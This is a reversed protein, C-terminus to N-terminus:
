STVLFEYDEPILAEMLNFWVKCYELVWADSSVAIHESETIFKDPNFDLLAEWNWNKDKAIELIESKMRGSNSVPKDFVWIMKEIQYQKFFKGVLYIANYTQSVKKYSGHLSSVDRFAGDKGKFVYGNSLYSELIILVNFGDLVLTKGKLEEKPIHKSNRKAVSSVSAAMGRMAKQQRKNLKYRNGALQGASLESYGRELLFSLDSVADKIKKQMAPHGFLQDDRGEKGRNRNESSM